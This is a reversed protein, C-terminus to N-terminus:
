HQGILFKAGPFSVIALNDIKAKAIEMSTRAALAWGGGSSVARKRAPIGRGFFEGSAESVLSGAQCSCAAYKSFIKALIFLRRSRFSCLQSSCYKGSAFSRM